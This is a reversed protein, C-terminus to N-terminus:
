LQLRKAGPNCLCGLYRKRARTRINYYWAICNAVRKIDDPKVILSDCVMNTGITPTNKGLSAEPDLIVQSINFPFLSSLHDRSQTLIGPHIPHTVVVKFAVEQQTFQHVRVATQDTQCVM